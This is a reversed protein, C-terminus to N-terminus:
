VHNLANVDVLYVVDTAFKGPPLPSGDAHRGPLPVQFTVNGAANITASDIFNEVDAEFTSVPLVSGVVHSVPGITVPCNMANGSRNNATGSYFYGVDAWCNPTTKPHKAYLLKRPNGGSGGEEDFRLHRVACIVRWRLGTEWEM